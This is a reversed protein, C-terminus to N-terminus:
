YVTSQSETVTICALPINHGSLRGTFIKKHLARRARTVRMRLINVRIGLRSAKERVDWYGGAIKVTVAYWLCLTDQHREPLQQIHYNVIWVARDMEACLIKSGAPQDAYLMTHSSQHPLSADFYHREQWEGWRRLVAELEQYELSVRM